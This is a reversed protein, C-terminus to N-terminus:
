ETRGVITFSRENATSQEIVILLHFWYVSEEVVEDQLWTGRGAWWMTLTLLPISGEPQFVMPFATMDFCVVVLVMATLTTVVGYAAAKVWADERRYIHTDLCWGGSYRQKGGRKSVVVGPMTALLRAVGRVEADSACEIVALQAVKQLHVLAAISLIRSFAITVILVIAFTTTMFLTSGYISGFLLTLAIVTLAQIAGKIASKAPHPSGAPSTRRVIVTLPTQSRLLSTLFRHIRSTITLIASLLPLINSVGDLLTCLVLDEM